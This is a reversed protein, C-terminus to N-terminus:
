QRGQDARDIGLVHNRLTPLVVVAREAGDRSSVIAVSLYGSLATAIDSRSEVM